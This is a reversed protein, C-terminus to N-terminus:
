GCAGSIQVLGSLPPPQIKSPDLTEGAATRAIMNASPIGTRAYSRECDLSSPGRMSGEMFALGPCRSCGEVHSCKSCTSLDRLRISRVENMEKSHRWIDIFKQTRVNGCALPFQVCPYVDGYPSIYCSTHGASCPLDDLFDGDASPIACAEPADHPLEEQRFVEKLEPERIGLALTARGGDMRPTITPDISVTVGLQTGLTM